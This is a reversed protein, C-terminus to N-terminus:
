ITSWGTIGDETLSPMRGQYTKNLWKQTELVMQDM